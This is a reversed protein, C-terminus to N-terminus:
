NISIYYISCLDFHHYLIDLVQYEQIFSAADRVIVGFCVFVVAVLVLVLRRVIRVMPTYYSLASRDCLLVSCFQPCLFCSGVVSCLVYCM